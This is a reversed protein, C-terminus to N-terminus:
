IGRFMCIRGSIAPGCVLVVLAGRGPIEVRRYPSAAFHNYPTTM